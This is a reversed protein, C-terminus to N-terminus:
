SVSCIMVVAEVSRKWGRGSRWGIEHEAGRCEKQGNDGAALPRSASTSRSRGGAPRKIVSRTGCKLGLGIVQMELKQEPNRVRGTAPGQGDEERLCRGSPPASPGACSRGLMGARGSLRPKLGAFSSPGPDRRAATSRLASRGASRRAPNGKRKRRRRGGENSGPNKFDVYIIAIYM